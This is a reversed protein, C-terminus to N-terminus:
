FHARQSRSPACSDVFIRSQLFAFIPDYRDHHARCCRVPDGIHRHHIFSPFSLYIICFPAHQLTPTHTKHRPFGLALAAAANVKKDTFDNDSTKGNSPVPTELM